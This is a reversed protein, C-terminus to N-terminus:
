TFLQAQPIKANKDFVFAVSFRARTIGVYMKSNSSKIKAPDGSRLWNNCPGHPYILVRDFTLGKAEGFNMPQSFDSCQTRRDYRLIQPRFKTLYDEVRSPPVLFVGDHGTVATNLSVTPHENPFLSDALNAIHQHCRHSKTEYSITLLKAKEWLRFKKVIDIGRFADNKNSNNTALISQRHDGVLTVKIGARLMLEIVELDYGAMDQVEDVFIHDFRNALRKMIAGGSIRNCECIFKSIKDSYIKRRNAFYHASIKTSPVGQASRGEVWCLGDIRHDHM